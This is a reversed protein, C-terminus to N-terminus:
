KNIFAIGDEFGNQLPVIKSFYSFTFYFLMKVVNPLLVTTFISKSYTSM